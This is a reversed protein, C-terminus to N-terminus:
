DGGSGGSTEDSEVRVPREVDDKPAEQRQIEVQHPYPITIGNENYAKKIVRLCDSRMQVYEPTAVWVRCRLRVSSDMFGHVGVWTDPKALVRGLENVANRTVDCAYDVDDDYSIDLYLDLRRRAFTTSNSIADTWVKDNPLSVANNTVPRITTRFPTIDTVEGEMGAVHVWDGIRYPRFIALMVGSAVAKLTDQLALAIALGAAGVLAILSGTQVGLQTLALVFGIGMIMYTMLAAMFAFLTGDASHTRRAKEGFKRISAATWKAVMYAVLVVVIAMFVGMGYAEFYPRSDIGFAALAIPLGAIIIAGQVVSDALDWNSGEYEENVKKLRRRGVSRIALKVIRSVVYFALMVVAAIGARILYPVSARLWDPLGDLGLVIEKVQVILEEM